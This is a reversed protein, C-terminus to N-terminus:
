DTRGDLSRDRVELGPLDQEGVVPSWKVRKKIGEVGRDPVMEEFQTKLLGGPVPILSIGSSGSASAMIPWLASGALIPTVAPSSQRVTTLTIGNGCAASASQVALCDAPRCSCAALAPALMSM